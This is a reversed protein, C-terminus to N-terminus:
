QLYYKGCVFDTGIEYFIFNDLQAQSYIWFLSFYTDTHCYTLQVTETKRAYFKKGM